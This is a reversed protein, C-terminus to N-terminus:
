GKRKSQESKQSITEPKRNRAEPERRLSILEFVQTALLPLLCPTLGWQLSERHLPIPFIGLLNACKESTNACKEWYM